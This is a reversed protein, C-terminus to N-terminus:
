YCVCKHFSLLSWFALYDLDKLSFEDLDLRFVLVCGGYNGCKIKIANQQSFVTYLIFAGRIALFISQRKGNRTSSDQDTFPIM